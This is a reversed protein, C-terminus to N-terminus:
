AAPKRRLLLAALRTVGGAQLEVLVSKGPVRTVKIEEAMGEIAAYVSQRAVALEDALAQARMPEGRRALLLLVQVQVDSLGAKRKERLAGELLEASTM